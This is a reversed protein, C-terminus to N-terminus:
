IGRSASFFLFHSRVSGLDLRREEITVNNASFPTWVRRRNFLEWGRRESVSWDVGLKWRDSVRCAIGAGVSFNWTTQARREGLDDSKFFVGDIPYGDLLFLDMPDRRSWEVTAAGRLGIALRRFTWEPQVVVGFRVLEQRLRIEPLGAVDRLNISQLRKGTEVDDVFRDVWMAHESRQVALCPGVFVRVSSSVVFPWRLVLESVPMKRERLHIGAEESMWADYNGLIGFQLTTTAIPLVSLFSKGSEMTSGLRLEFEPSAACAIGVNLLGLCAAAVRFGDTLFNMRRM